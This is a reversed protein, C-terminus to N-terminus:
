VQNGNEWTILGLEHPNILEPHQPLVRLAFGHQGTTDCPIAIEYLFTKNGEKKDMVMPLIHGDAIQGGADIRGYYVQVSLDNPDLGDINLWAKVKYSETVKITRKM